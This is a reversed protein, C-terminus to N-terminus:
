KVRLTRDPLTWTGRSDKEWLVLVVQEGPKRNAKLYVMCGAFKKKDYVSINHRLSYKISSIVQGAHLGVEAAPSGPQVYDIVVGYMGLPIGLAGRNSADLTSVALGLINGAAKEIAVVSPENLVIGEGKVYVLTNATGLDVAIENAPLWSGINFNFLRM